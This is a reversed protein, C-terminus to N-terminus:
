EMLSTTAPKPLLRALDGHVTLNYTSAIQVLCAGFLGRLEGLALIFDDGEDEDVGYHLRPLRHWPSGNGFRSARTLYQQCGARMTRLSEAARSDEGVSQLVRTLEARIEQVLHEVLQPAEVGYPNFLARRDELFVILKRLGERESAPPTWSIGGFPTSVGTVRRLADRLRRL